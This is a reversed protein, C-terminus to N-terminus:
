QDTIAGYPLPPPCIYINGINSFENLPNKPFSGLKLM